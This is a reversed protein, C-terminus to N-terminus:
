DNKLRFETTLIIDAADYSWNWFYKNEFYYKAVQILLTDVSVCDMPM